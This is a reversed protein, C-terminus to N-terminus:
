KKEEGLVSRKTAAIIQKVEDDSPGAEGFKWRDVVRIHNYLVVTVKDDDGIGWATAAKSKVPGLGYVVNPAQIAAAKERIKTAYQDRAEDDPYEADLEVMSQSKDAGVVTVSKPPGQVNLFIVFATMKAGRYDPLQLLKNLEFALQGVGTKDGVQAADQRIVIAVVPNLGNECVLCHMADKRNLASYASLWEDISRRLKPDSGGKQDVFRTRESRDNIKIADLFIAHANADDNINAPLRGDEVIYARFPSPVLEGKQGTTAADKAPEKPEQALTLSVFVGMFGLIAATKM